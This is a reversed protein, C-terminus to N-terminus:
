ELVGDINNNILEIMQLFPSFDTLKKGERNLWDFQKLDFTWEDYQKVISVEAPKAANKQPLNFGFREFIRLGKM